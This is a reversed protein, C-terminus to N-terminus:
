VELFVPKEWHECHNTIDFNEEDILDMSIIYECSHNDNHVVSDSVKNWFYKDTAKSVTVDSVIYTSGGKCKWHEPCQGKGNWNHAGYNEQFQTAIVIKM